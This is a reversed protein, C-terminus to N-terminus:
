EAAMEQKSPAYETITQVVPWAKTMLALAAVEHDAIQSLVEGAKALDAEYRLTKFLESSAQM